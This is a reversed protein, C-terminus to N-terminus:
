IRWLLQLPFEPVMRSLKTPPRRTTKVIKPHASKRFQYNPVCCHFMIRAPTPFSIADLFSFTNLSSSFIELIHFAIRLISFWHIGMELRDYKANGQLIWLFKNRDWYKVHSFRSPTEMAKFFVTCESAPPIPIPHLKLTAPKKFNKSTSKIHKWTANKTKLPYDFPRPSKIDYYQGGKLEPLIRINRIIGAWDRSANRRKWLM